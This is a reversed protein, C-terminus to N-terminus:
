AASTRRQTHNAGSAAFLVQCGCRTLRNAFREEPSTFWRGVPGGVIILSTTHRIRDVLADLGISVCREITGRSGLERLAGRYGEIAAEVPEGPAEAHAASSVIHPVLVLVRADAGKALPVAVNVAALTGEVTTAIVTISQPIVSTSNVAGV